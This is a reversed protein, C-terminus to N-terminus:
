DAACRRGGGSRDAGGGGRGAQAASGARGPERLQAVGSAGLLVTSVDPNRLAWAIALQARTWSMPVDRTRAAAQMAEQRDAYVFDKLWGFGEAALRSDAPVGEDYRGALM